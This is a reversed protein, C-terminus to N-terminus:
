REEACFLALRAVFTKKQRRHVPPSQQKYKSPIHLYMDRQRVTESVNMHICICKICVYVGVLEAAALCAHM